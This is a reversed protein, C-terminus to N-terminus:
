HKSKKVSNVGAITVIGDTTKWMQTYEKLREILDLTTKSSSHKKLYENITM